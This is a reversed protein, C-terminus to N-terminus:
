IQHCSSKMLNMLLPLFSKHSTKPTPSKLSQLDTDFYPKYGMKEIFAFIDDISAKQEDYTLKARKNILSVEINECYPKRKLSREIGSSCAQCTMNDICFRVEKM